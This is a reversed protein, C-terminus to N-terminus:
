IAAYVYGPKTKDPEILRVHSTWPRPPFSWSTSSKLNNLSSMKEWYKARDDSKYFAAPETGVYVTNFAENNNNNNNNNNKARELNHHSVSVSTIDKSSISDIGINDWTEGYDDTKWLENGFTGCYMRNRKSPDSSICQPHTGKLCEHIKWNTKTKSYELTLVSDQMAILLKTTM